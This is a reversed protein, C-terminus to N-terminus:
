RRARAGAKVTTTSTAQLQANTLDTVLGRTGRYIRAFPIHFARTGEVVVAKTGHVSQVAGLRIGRSDRVEVGARFDSGAALRPNGAFASRAMPNAANMSRNVVGITRGAAGTTGGAHIGGSAKVSGGASVQALAPGSALLSCLGLISTSNRM